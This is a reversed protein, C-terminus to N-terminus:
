SGTSRSGSSPDVEPVPGHNRVYFLDTPTIASESLLELPTELNLPDETWFVLAPHKAIAPPRQGPRRRARRYSVRRAGDPRSATWAGIGGVLDAIEEFGDRRLRSAAISSRYGSACHVVLQRDRPVEDLREQLRGLPINLSGRIREDRWEREARVDLVAPPAPGGLQEALTAATIREIRAVLEPRRDLAQMGGELHGAVNDFGIRGLRM